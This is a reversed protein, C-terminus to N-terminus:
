PDRCAAIDEHEKLHPAAMAASRVAAAAGAAHQRPCGHKARSADPNPGATPHCHKPRTPAM